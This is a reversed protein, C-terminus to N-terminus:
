YDDYLVLLPVPSNFSEKRVVSRHFLNGLVGRERHIMCLLGADIRDVFDDIGNKINDNYITNYSHAVESLFLDVGLDVGAHVTNKEIHLVNVHANFETALKVLPEVTESSIVNDDIALIIDKLRQYSRNKPIALLPRVSRKIVAATTSGIFVEKLGSAGQTGMVILDAQIKKAYQTIVIATDGEIAKAKLSSGHVIRDKNERIIKALKEEAEKKIFGRVPEVIGSNTPAFYAHILHIKSEFRIALNIAYKLANTANDSFDTPVLINKM